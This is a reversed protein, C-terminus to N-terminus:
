DNSSGVAPSGRRHLWMPYTREDTWLLHKTGKCYDRCVEYIWLPAKGNLFNELFERGQQARIGANKKKREGASLDELLHSVDQFADCLIQGVANKNTKFGLSERLSTDLHTGLWAIKTGVLPRLPRLHPITEAEQDPLRYRSDRVQSDTFIEVLKMEKLLELHFEVSELNQEFKGHIAIREEDVVSDLRQAIEALEASEEQDCIAKLAQHVIDTWEELSKGLVKEVEYYEDFGLPLDLEDLRIPDWPGENWVRGWGCEDFHAIEVIRFLVAFGRALEDDLVERLNKSLEYKGLPVKGLAVVATKFADQISLASQVIAGIRPLGNALEWIPEEPNVPTLDFCGPPLRRFEINDVDAFLSAWSIRDIMGDPYLLPLGPDNSSLMRPEDRMKNCWRILQYSDSPLLQLTHQLKGSCNRLRSVIQKRYNRVGLTLAAQPTSASHIALWSWVPQLNDRRWNQIPQGLIAALEVIEHAALLGFVVSKASDSAHECWRALLTQWTEHNATHISVSIPRDVARAIAALPKIHSLGTPLDDGWEKLPSSDDKEFNVDGLIIDPLNTSVFSDWFHEASKIGRIGLAVDNGKQITVLDLPSIIVGDGTVYDFDEVPIITGARDDIRLARLKRIM